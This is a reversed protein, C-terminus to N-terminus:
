NFRLRKSVTEDYSVSAVLRTRLGGAVFYRSVYVAPLKHWAALTIILDRHVLALASGTVGPRWEIRAPVGRHSRDKFITCRLM